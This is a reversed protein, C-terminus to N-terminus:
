TSSILNLWNTNGPSSDLRAWLSGHSGIAMAVGQSTLNGNPDAYADEDFVLLSGYTTALTEALKQVTVSRLTPTVGPTTVIPLIDDAAVESASPLETIKADEPM